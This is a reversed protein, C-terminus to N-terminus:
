LHTHLLTSADCQIYSGGGPRFVFDKGRARGEKGAEASTSGGWGKDSANGRRGLGSGFSRDCRRWSDKRDTRRM